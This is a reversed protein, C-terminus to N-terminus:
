EELEFMLLSLATLGATETRLIRRGLTLAHGGSQLIEQVETEEFGGEPGIFVGASEGPRISKLIRRSEEIGEAHEYPVLIHDLERAMSLAESFSLCSTVEPIIDRQSQEAASAAIARYRKLRNEAKKEDWKVICRKMQVPVICSAGLEVAKQIILELKDGKPLGQFLVLRSSLEHTRLETLIELVACDKEYAALRCLYASGSGDSASLQEGPHMRLVNKIHNLAAGDVYIRGERTKASEIFIRTM